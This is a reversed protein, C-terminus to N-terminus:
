ASSPMRNQCTVPTRRTSKRDGATTSGDGIKTTALAFAPHQGRPLTVEVPDPFTGTLLATYAAKAAAAANAGTTFGIRSGKKDRPPPYPHSM